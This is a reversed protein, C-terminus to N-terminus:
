LEGRKEENLKKLFINNSFYFFAIKKKVNIKTYYINIEYIAIYEM